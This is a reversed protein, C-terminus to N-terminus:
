YFLDEKGIKINVEKDFNEYLFCLHSMSQTAAFADADMELTRINLSDKENIASGHEDFYMYFGDRNEFQLEAALYNCHGNFVHGFEHLVIFRSAFIELLKVKEDDEIKSNITEVKGNRYIIGEYSIKKLEEDSDSPRIKRLFDITKESMSEAFYDYYLDIM